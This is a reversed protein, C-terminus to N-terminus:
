ANALRWKVSSWSPGPALLRAPDSGFLAFYDPTSRRAGSTTAANQGIASIITIIGAARSTIAWNAAVGTM